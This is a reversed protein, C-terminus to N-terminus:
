FNRKLHYIKLTVFKEVIIGVSYHEAVIQNAAKYRHYKVYRFLLETDEDRGRDQKYFFGINGERPRATHFVVNSNNTNHYLRALHGMLVANIELKQLLFPWSYM